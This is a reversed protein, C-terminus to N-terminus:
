LRNQIALPFFLFSPLFFPPLSSSPLTSSPLFFTTLIYTGHFLVQLVESHSMFCAKCLCVPTSPEQIPPSLIPVIDFIGLNM